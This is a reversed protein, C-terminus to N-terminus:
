FQKMDSKNQMQGLSKKALEEELAIYRLPRIRPMAAHSFACQAGRACGGRKSLFRCPVGNGVHGSGSVESAPASDRGVPKGSRGRKRGTAATTNSIHSFLLTDQNTSIPPEYQFLDEPIIITHLDEPTMPPSLPISVPYTYSSEPPQPPQPPAIKPRTHLPIPPPGSTTAHPLTAPSSILLGSVSALRLYLIVYM